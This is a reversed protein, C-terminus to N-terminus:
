LEKDISRTQESCDGGTIIQYLRNCFASQEKVINVIRFNIKDSIRDDKFVQLIPKYLEIAKSLTWTLREQEEKVLESFSNLILGAVYINVQEIITLLTDYETKSVKNNTKIIKEISEKHLESFMPSEFSVDLTKGNYSNKKVTYLPNLEFICGLAFHGDANINAPINKTNVVQGSPVIVTKPRDLIETAINSLRQISLLYLTVNYQNAM